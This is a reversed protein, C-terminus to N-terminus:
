RVCIRTQCYNQPFVNGTIQSVIISLKLSYLSGGFPSNREKVEGRELPHETKHWVPGNLAQRHGLTHQVNTRTRSLFCEAGSFDDGTAAHVAPDVFIPESLPATDGSIFKEAVPCDSTQLKRGSHSIFKKAVPCGSSQLRQVAPDAFIPESLLAM